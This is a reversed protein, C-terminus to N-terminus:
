CREERGAVPGGAGAAAALTDVAHAAARRGRADAAALTTLDLSEQPDGASELAAALVRPLDLYHLRDELLAAVAVENAANLVAPYTGGRRGAGVAIGVCPFREADLPEFSLTGIRALDLRGFDVERWAPAHLAYWIPL